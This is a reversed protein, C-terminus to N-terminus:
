YRYIKGNRIKPNKLPLWFEESYEFLNNGTKHQGPAADQFGPGPSSAGTSLLKNTQETPQKHNNFKMSISSSIFLKKSVCSLTVTYYIILSATFINWEIQNHQKIHYSTIISYLNVMTHSNNNINNWTHMQKM